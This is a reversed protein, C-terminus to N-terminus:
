FAFALGMFMAVLWILSAAKTGALAMRIRSKDPTALAVYIASLIIINAGPIVIILYVASVSNMLWPLLTLLVVLSSIVSFALLASKEGWAVAITRTGTMRDSEYDEVTKLIERSIMFTIIILAPVLSPNINDVAMGGYIVTVAVLLSVVFNGFLVTKKFVRSYMYLLVTMVVAIMAMAAGLFISLGLALVILAIALIRAADLSLQGSPLPRHAKSIRDPELDYCDNIVNAAATLAAIVLAAIWLRPSNLNAALYGGLLVFGGTIM